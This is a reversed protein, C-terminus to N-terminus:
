PFGTRVFKEGRFFADFFDVVAAPDKDSGTTSLGLAKDFGHDFVQGDLVNNDILHERGGQGIIDVIFIKEGPKGDLQKKDRNEHALGGKFPFNIINRDVQGLNGLYKFIM